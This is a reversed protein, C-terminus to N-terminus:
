ILSLLGLLSLVGFVFVVPKFFLDLPFELSQANNFSPM